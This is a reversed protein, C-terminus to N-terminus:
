DGGSSEYRGTSSLREGTVVAHIEAKATEGIFGTAVLTSIVRELYNNPAMKYTGYVVYFWYYVDNVIRKTGGSLDSQHGARLNGTDVPCYGPQKIVREAELCVKNLSNEKAQAVGEVGNAFLRGLNSSIQLSANILKIM